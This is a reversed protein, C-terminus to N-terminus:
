LVLLVGLVLVCYGGLHELLWLVQGTLLPLPLQASEAQLLSPKPSVKVALTQIYLSTLLRDPEVVPYGTLPCSAILSHEFSFDLISVLYSIKVLLVTLSQFLYGLTTKCDGRKLNKM